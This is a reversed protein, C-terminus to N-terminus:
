VHLEDSFNEPVNRAHPWTLIPAPNPEPFDTGGTEWRLVLCCKLPLAMLATNHILAILSLPCATFLLM